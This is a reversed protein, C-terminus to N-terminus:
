LAPFPMGFPVFWRMISYFTTWQSGVIRVCVVSNLWLTIDSELIIYPKSRGWPLQGFL